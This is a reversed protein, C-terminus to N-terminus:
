KFFGGIVPIKSAIKTPEVGARAVGSSPTVAFMDELAAPVKTTAVLVGFAVLGGIDTAGVQFATSWGLGAPMSFNMNQSSRAIYDALNVMLYIVPFCLVNVAFSKFWGTITDEQGPLAGWLFALPAFIVQIFIGAYRFILTFFIMFVVVLAVVSLVLAILTSSIGTGGIYINSRGLLWSKVDFPNASVFAGLFHDMLHFPEIPVLGSPNLASFSTDILSKLVRGLDIIFGALPYSFTILILSVIIRPLAATFTIVTRPDIHQRTMVMFGLIVLIIAALSYSINRVIAWISVISSIYDVGTQAYAQQPSFINNGLTRKLYATTQIDPPSQLIGTTMAMTRGLLGSVQGGVLAEKGVMLTAGNIILYQTADGVWESLNTADVGLTENTQKGLSNELIDQRWMDGGPDAKVLAAAPKPLFLSLAVLFLLFVKIRALDVM